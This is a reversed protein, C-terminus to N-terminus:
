GREAWVRMDPDSAFSDGSGLLGERRGSCRSMLDSVADM